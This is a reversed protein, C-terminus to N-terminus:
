LERKKLNVNPGSQKTSKGKLHMKYNHLSPEMNNLRKKRTDSITKAEYIFSSNTFEERVLGSCVIPGTVM